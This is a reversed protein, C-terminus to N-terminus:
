QLISCGLVTRISLFCGYVSCQIVAHIGTLLQHMRYKTFYIITTKFVVQSQYQWRTPSLAENSYISLLVSFTFLIFIQLFLHFSLALPRCLQIEIDSPHELPLSILAYSELHLSIQFSHGWLPINLYYGSLRVFTSNKQKKM